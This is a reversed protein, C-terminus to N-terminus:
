SIKFYYGNFDNTFYKSLEWGKNDALAVRVVTKGQLMKRLLYRALEYKGERVLRAHILIAKAKM